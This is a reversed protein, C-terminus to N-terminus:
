VNSDNIIQQVIRLLDADLQGSLNSLEQQGSSISPQVQLNAPQAANNNNNSSSDGGNGSYGSGDIPQGAERGPVGYEGQSAGSSAGSSSGDRFQSTTPLNRLAGSSAGGNPSGGAQQQQQQQQQQANASNGGAASRGSTAQNRGDQLQSPSRGAASSPVAPRANQSQARPRTSGSASSSSSSTTSPRRPAPRSGGTPRGGESSPSPAAARVDDADDDDNGVGTGEPGGQATDTVGNSGESGTSPPPPPRSSGGSGPPPPPGWGWGEPGDFSYVDDHFYSLYPSFDDSDEYVVPKSSSSPKKGRSSSPKKSPRPSRPPQMMMVMPQKPPSSSTDEELAGTMESETMPAVGSNDNVTFSETEDNPGNSGLDMNSIDMMESPYEEDQPAQSQFEEEDMPSTMTMVMPRSSPARGRSPKKGSSYTSPPPPGGWGGSLSESV